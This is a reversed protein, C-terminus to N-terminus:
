GIVSRIRNVSRPSDGPRDQDRLAHTRDSRSDRTEPFHQDSSNQGHERQALPARGSRRQADWDGRLARNGIRAATLKKAAPGDQAVLAAQMAPPMWVLGDAVARIATMLSEIAFRKHVIARAGLRLATLGTEVSENATLVIVATKRSLEPIQDMSWQEMQLDLLLIDCPNAALAAELGSAQEVEAAVELGELALLSRLGQRFLAHDDAIILRLQSLPIM